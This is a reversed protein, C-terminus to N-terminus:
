KPFYIMSILKAKHCRGLLKGLPRRVVSELIAAEMVPKSFGQVGLYNYNQQNVVSHIHIKVSHYQVLIVSIM